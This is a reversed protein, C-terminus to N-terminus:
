ASTFTVKPSPPVAVPVNEHSVTVAVGVAKLM